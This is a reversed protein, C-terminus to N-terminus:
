EGGGSAVYDQITVFAYQTSQLYKNTLTFDYEGATEEEGVYKGKILNGEIWVLVSDDSSEPVFKVNYLYGGEYTSAEKLGTIGKEANGEIYDRANFEELVFKYGNTFDVSQTTEYSTVAISHQEGNALVETAESRIRWTFTIGTPAPETSLRVADSDIGILPMEPDRNVYLCKNRITGSASGSKMDYIYNEMEFCSGPDNVIAEVIGINRYEPSASNVFRGKIYIPYIGQFVKSGSATFGIDKTESQDLVAEMQDLTLLSELKVALKDPCNNTSISFTSTENKNLVIPEEPAITVCALESVPNMRVPIMVILDDYDPHTIEVKVADGLQPGESGAAQEFHFHGSPDTVIIGLLVDNKYISVTAAEIGNATGADKVYGDLVIPIDPSLSEPLGEVVMTSGSLVKFNLAVEGNEPIDSGKFLRFKVQTFEAIQRARIKVSDEISDNPALSPISTYIDYPGSGPGFETFEIADPVNENWVQLTAGTYDENTCNKIVFHIDYDENINLEIIDSLSIDEIIVDTGKYLSFLWNIANGSCIISDVEFQQLADKSQVETGLQVAKAGYHLELITGTELGPQVAFKVVVPVVVGNTGTLSGWSVNALKAGTNVSAICDSPVDYFDDPNFCNAYFTSDPSAARVEMIKIKYDDAPLSTESDPGARLYLRIDTSEDALLILNFKAYYYNEESELSIIKMAKEDCYWDKCLEVFNLEIGSTDESEPLLTLTVEHQNNAIIQIDESLASMYGEKWAKVYVIRSAEIAGSVCTGALDTTCAGILDNTISDFFSVEVNPMPNNESDIIIAKIEGYGHELVVTLTITTGASLQKHESEGFLENKQARIFYSTTSPEIDEFLYRGTSDTQATQGPLPAIPFPTGERYLTLNAGEIPNGAEDVVVALVSGTNPLFQESAQITVSAESTLGQNDEVTLTVTYNGVQEYTHQATIGTATNGDGFDWSYTTITGDPDFSQSADFNVELPVQGFYKDATILPVPAFPEDPPVSLVNITTNRQGQLGDNDTVTLVVTYTGPQEYTHEVAGGEASGGDGFSWEYGIIEGDPDISQSADFHVTLPAYGAYNDADIIAVPALPHDPVSPDTVQIVISDTSSLGADNTITLVVTYNGVQEYTHQATIGTATNGDGFDWSYTTISGTFDFSKSANFSVTLPADGYYPSAELEAHPPLAEPAERAQILLTSQSSAGNNDTVTLTVLYNGEGQFTYPVETGSLTTLSNIDWEYGIIEGDPDISQSADFHITLPVIGFYNDARAIAIPQFNIFDPKKRVQIVVTAFNKNGSNDEVALTILYNGAEAFLHETKM